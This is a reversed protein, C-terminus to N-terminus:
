NFKFLKNFTSTIDTLTELDWNLVGLLNEVKKDIVTMAMHEEDFPLEKFWEPIINEDTPRAISTYGMPNDKLKCVIVKCGDHIAMSYNDNHMKRLINYNYGARVHGPLNAKGGKYRAYDEMATYKTLNNVRKPSGKEWPPIKDFKKKFEIIKEVISDKDKEQLTDELIEKLFEQIIVPTDSRKLDLGMAKVKGPKGNVDCRKGDDDVVMIAYRKKTIFLGSTGVVERGCKILKGFQRPCNFTKRMFSPFSKNVEDVLSDYLKIATDVNWDINGEKIDDKLAPYASFYVSDTNHVLHGNAFFFPDQKKMSIDYVYGDVTGLEEVKSVVQRKTNVM